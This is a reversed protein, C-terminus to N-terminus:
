REDGGRKTKEREKVDHEQVSENGIKIHQGKKHKKGGKKEGYEKRHESGGRSENWPNSLVSRVKCGGGGGKQGGRKKRKQGKVQWRLVSRGEVQRGAHGGKRNMAKGVGGRGGKRSSGKTTGNQSVQDIFAEPSREWTKCLNGLKKGEGKRGGGPRGLISERLQQAM